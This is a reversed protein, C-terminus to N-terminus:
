GKFFSFVMVGARREIHKSAKESLHYQLQVAQQETFICMHEQLLWPIQTYILAPYRFRFTHM